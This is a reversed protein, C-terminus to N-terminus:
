ETKEIRKFRKASVFGDESQVLCYARGNKLQFLRHKVKIQKLYIGEPSFVDYVIEEPDAETFMEIWINGSEDFLWRRTIVNFVGAYKPQGPTRSYKTPVPDYERGFKLSLKGNPDYVSIQYKDGYGANLKGEPSVTWVTTPAVRSTSSSVTTKTRSTIVPQVLKFEGYNTIEEGAPNYRHISMRRTEDDQFQIGFYIFNNQDTAILTPLGDEIRFGSIYDGNENLIAVRYNMIDMVYVNGDSGVSFYVFRGFEGPGQGRGGITRIYKGEKDYIKFSSDGGDMVFITGDAAVKMDQPRHFIYDEDDVDGGISLEEELECTFVGDRPFDPNTVVKVGDITEIIVPYESKKEACSIIIIILSFVLIIRRFCM